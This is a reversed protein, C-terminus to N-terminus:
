TGQQNVKDIFLINESTHCMYRKGEFHNCKKLQLTLNSPMDIKLIVHSYNSVENIYINESIFRVIIM